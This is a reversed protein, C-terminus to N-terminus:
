IVVLLRERMCIILKFAKITTEYPAKTVLSLHQTIVTMHCVVLM